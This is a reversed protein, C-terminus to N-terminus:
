FLSVGHVDAACEVKVGSFIFLQEEYEVVVHCLLHVVVLVKIDVIELTPADVYGDASVTENM